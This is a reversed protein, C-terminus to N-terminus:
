RRFFITFKIGLRALSRQGPTDQSGLAICRRTSSCLQSHTHAIHVTKGFHPPNLRQHKEKKAPNQSKGSIVNRTESAVRGKSANEPQLRAALPWNRTTEKTVMTRSM